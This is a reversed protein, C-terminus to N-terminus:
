DVKGIDVETSRIVGDDLLQDMRNTLDLRVYDGNGAVQRLTGPGTLEFFGTREQPRKWCRLDDHRPIMVHRQVVDIRPKSTPKVDVLLINGIVQLREVEIIFDRNGADIGGPPEDDFAPTDILPLHQPHFSLEAPKGIADPLDHHRMVREIQGWAM